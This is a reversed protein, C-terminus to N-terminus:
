CHTSNQKSLLLVNVVDMGHPIQLPRLVDNKLSPPIVVCVSFETELVPYWHYTSDISTETVGDLTVGGKPLYRTAKFSKSGKTGSTFYHFSRILSKSYSNM